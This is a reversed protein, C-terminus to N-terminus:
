AGATVQPSRVFTKAVPAPTTFFCVEKMKIESVTEQLHEVLPEIKGAPLAIMVRGFERSIRLGGRTKEANAETFRWNAVSAGPVGFKLAADRLAATDKRRSLINVVALGELIGKTSAQFEEAKPDHILLQNARWNTNGQLEDIARVIQQVSASHKKPHFVSTLNTLGKSIPVQYLFGRGPQDVRGATAMAEFVAEVDCEDVVVTILEKEHNKTIRLLGLRDRLGYGNVYSITPGQAGAKIAAKAISDATGKETVHMLAILDRKFQIDFNVSEFRYEGTTWLPYDDACIFTGCSIAFIAGAGYVRLKGVMVIQEMLHDIEEDPVLFRLVEQEPSLAPLFGQYWRDQMVSGRAAQSYAHAGGTELVVDMVKGATQRPLIATVFSYNSHHSFTM